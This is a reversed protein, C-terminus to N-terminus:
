GSAAAVALIRGDWDVRYIAGNPVPPLPAGTVTALAARIVGGHAVVLSGASGPVVRGAMRAIAANARVALAELTEAGPPPRRFELWEAWAEPHLQACEERTLGEFVGLARERLDHDVYAVGLGLERGVIRATESARALDSSAIWCPPGGLAKRLVVAMQRAQARGTANLTVDTQGQWREELNWDTEGHRALYLVVAPM